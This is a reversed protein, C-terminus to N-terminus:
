PITVVSFGYRIYRQLRRVFGFTAARNFSDMMLHSHPTVVVILNAHHARCMDAIRKFSEISKLTRSDNPVFARSSNKQTFSPEKLIYSHLDDSRAKIRRINFRMGTRENYLVDFDSRCNAMIKGMISEVPLITLYRQYFLVRNEGTVDPHLKRLYDNAPQGYAYMNSLDIQLYINQVDFGNELLYHIIMEYDYLNASAAALNYFRSGPLYRELDTTYTTGIRSSGVMFSNYEWKHHILYEIKVFRRNFIFPDPFVKTGFVGFPDVIYNILGVFLIVTSVLTLWLGLWIRAGM